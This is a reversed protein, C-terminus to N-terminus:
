LALQWQFRIVSNDDWNDLADQNSPLEQKFYRYEVFRFLDTCLQLEYGVIGTFNAFINVDGNDQEFETSGYGAVGEEQDCSEPPFQFAEPVVIFWKFQTGKLMPTIKNTLAGQVWSDYM